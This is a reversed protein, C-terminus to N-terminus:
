NTGFIKNTERKFMELLGRFNKRGHKLQSLEASVAQLELKLSQIEHLAETLTKDGRLPPTFFVMHGCGCTCMKSIRGSM